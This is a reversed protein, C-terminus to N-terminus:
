IMFSNSLKEVLWPSRRVFDSALKGFGCTGSFRPLFKIEEVLRAQLPISRSELEYAEGIYLNLLAAHSFNEGELSEASSIVPYIVARGNAIVLSRGIFFARDFLAPIRTLEDRVLHRVPATPVYIFDNGQRRVRGLFETEECALHAASSPGLDLRFRMSRVAATRVAFNPGYPVEGPSLPGEPIAFEFKAFAANAFPHTQLWDPTGPPFIPIIPGCVVAASPFAYSARLLEELWKESVLVDDDTFAILAGTAVELARNLARSKGSIPEFLVKLGAKERWDRLVAATSDTSGNDVVILERSYEGTQAVLSRLTSELMAARNRTAVIVSFEPVTQTRPM